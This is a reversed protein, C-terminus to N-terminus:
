PTSFRTRVQMTLGHSTVEDLWRLCVQGLAECSPVKATKTSCLNHIHYAMAPGDVVARGAGLTVRDAYPQLHHRLRPVGM